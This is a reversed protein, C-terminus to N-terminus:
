KIYGAIKVSAHPASSGVTADVSPLGGFAATKVCAAAGLDSYFLDTAAAAQGTPVSADHHM